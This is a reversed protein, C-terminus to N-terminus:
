LNLRRGREIFAYGALVQFVEEHLHHMGWSIMYVKFVGVCKGLNIYGNDVGLLPLQKM